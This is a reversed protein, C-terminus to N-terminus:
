DRLSLRKGKDVKEKLIDYASAQSAQVQLEYLMEQTSESIISARDTGSYFLVM